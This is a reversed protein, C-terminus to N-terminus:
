STHTPSSESGGNQDRREQRGRRREFVIVLWVGWLALAIFGYVLLGAWGYGPFGGFFRRALFFAVLLTLAVFLSFMVRGLWTKWWGPSTAFTVAAGVLPIAASFAVWSAVEYLLADLEAGTM